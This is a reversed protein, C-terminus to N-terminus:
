RPERGQLLAIHARVHQSAEERVPQVQSRLPPLGQPHCHNTDPRPDLRRWYVSSTKVVDLLFPEKTERNIFRDPIPPVQFDDDDDEHDDEKKRKTKTQNKDDNRYEKDEKKRKLSDEKDKKRKSGGGQEFVVGATEV